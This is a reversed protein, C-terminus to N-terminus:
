YHLSVLVKGAPFPGKIETFTVDDEYVDIIGEYEDNFEKQIFAKAQEVDLALVLVYFGLHDPDETPELDATFLRLKTEEKQPISTSKTDWQAKGSNWEHTELFKDLDIETSM